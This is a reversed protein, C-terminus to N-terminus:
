EDNDGEAKEVLEEDIVQKMITDITLEDGEEALEVANKLVLPLYNSFM